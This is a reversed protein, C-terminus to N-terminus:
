VYSNFLLDSIPLPYRAQTRMSSDHSMGSSGKTPLTRWLDLCSKSERSDRAVRKQQKWVEAEQRQDRQGSVLTQQEGVGELLCMEDSKVM